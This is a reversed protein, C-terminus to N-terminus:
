QRKVERKEESLLSIEGRRVGRLDEEGGDYEIGRQRFTYRAVM